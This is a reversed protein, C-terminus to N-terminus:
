ITKQLDGTIFSERAEDSFLLGRTYFKLPYDKDFEKTLQNCIEVISCDNKTKRFDDITKLWFVTLTEHYPMEKSLDVEFAKLLNFIGARMKAYAAEFDHRSLYYLAVTLHAAHKWDDRSISCDEFSRALNLIEKENECKKM